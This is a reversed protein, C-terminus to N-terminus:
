DLYPKIGLLQSVKVFKYGKDTLEKLVIGVSRATQSRNGGKADFGDHFIIIRGPKAIKIAHKAIKSASPQIVEISSCFEGSIPQLRLKHATKFIRSQRYLWPPRFLAPTKGSISKIVKQANMIQQKFDRQKLYNTFKHNMSHNGVEHGDKIIKKVTEPYREACAGVLFFTAKANYKALENLIQTTYPENPGDDFTLAIVKENTITKYPFKGYLQSYSSFRIWYIALGIVALLLIAILLIM